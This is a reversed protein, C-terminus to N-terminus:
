LLNRYPITLAPVFGRGQINDYLLWPMAAKPMRLRGLEVSMANGMVPFVHLTTNLGHSKAIEGLLDYAVTRFDSLHLQTQVLNVSPNAVTLKWISVDKGLVNTIRDENVFDSMALVLAATKKIRKPHEVIYEIPRGKKKWAWAPSPERHRQYVEATAIDNMETGLLILLPQPALAFISLHQARDDRIHRRVDRDFLGVLHRGEVEYYRTPDSDRDVSNDFGMRIACDEAPYRRPFMAEAAEDFLVHVPQGDIGRGYLVVHSKKSSSIGTVRNVRSEHERKWSQLLEATYRGGNKKVDIKRHCGHCVLMLNNFDNLAKQSVGANGRPGESSFAYIHARQARNVAEQTVLSKWLPTNCGQFECRGAARGWLMATVDPKIDRTVRKLGGNVGSSKSQRKPM